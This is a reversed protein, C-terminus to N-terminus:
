EARLQEQQQKVSEAVRAAAQFKPVDLKRVDDTLGWYGYKQYRGAHNFYLFIDGGSEFWNRLYREVAEGARPDFQAQAKIDVCTAQQGLDVGGEYAVSKVGHKKALEHLQLVWKGNGSGTKSLLLNCVDDVTLDDRAVVTKDHGFYPAAAIGYLHESPPGAYRQIYTLGEEVVRPNVLQGALIMRIRPDDGMARQFAAEIELTRKGVRRWAWYWQNTEKGGDNLTNEGAAVEAKALAFNAKCQTFQGNWIENSYEVYCNIGPNLRSKVLAALQELFDDDAGVPVHLWIDKGTLNGLAIAHEYAGGKETFQADTPKAREDWRVTKSNNTSLFDMFRITGFPELARLFERTFIAADDAYGPRLLKIDRVGGATNTFSLFLQAPQGAPPTFHIDATTRNAQADYRLNRVSAPSAVAKVDCRGTCSFTYVGGADIVETMVVAGADTTPWGNEDLPVTGSWPQKASAFKRSTKMADIFVMSRSWDKLQELNVGLASKAPRPAAPDTQPGNAPDFRQSSGDSYQVVVGNVDRAPTQAWGISILSWSVFVVAARVGLRVRPAASPYVSSAFGTSASM